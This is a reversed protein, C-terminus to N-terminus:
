VVTSLQTNFLKKVSFRDVVVNGLWTFKRFNRIWKVAFSKALCKGTRHQSIFKKKKRKVLLVISALSRQMPMWSDSIVPKKNEPTKPVPPHSNQLLSPPNSRCRCREAGHCFLRRGIWCAGPAWSPDFARWCHPWDEIMMNNGSPFSAFAFEFTASFGHASQAVPKHLSKCVFEFLGKMLKRNSLTWRSYTCTYDRNFLTLVHWLFYSTRNSSTQLDSFLEM